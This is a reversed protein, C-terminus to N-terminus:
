HVKKEALELVYYDTDGVRRWGSSLATSPVGRTVLVKAGSAALWETAQEKEAEDAAWFILVDEQPIEAAITVEGLHAWVHDSLTDGMYSVREGPKVGMQHLTTAV